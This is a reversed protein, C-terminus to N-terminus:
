NTLLRSLVHSLINNTLLILTIIIRYLRVKREASSRPTSRASACAKRDGRYNPQSRRRQQTAIFPPQHEDVPQPCPTPPCSSRPTSVLSVDSPTINNGTQSSIDTQMGDVLSVYSGGSLQASDTYAYSSYPLTPAFSQQAAAFSSMLQHYAPFNVGLGELHLQGSLAVAREFMGADAYAQLTWFYITQRDEARIGRCGDLLIELDWYRGLYIFIILNTALRLKLHM